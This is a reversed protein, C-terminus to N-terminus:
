LCKPSKPNVKAIIRVSLFHNQNNDLNCVLVVNTAMQNATISWVRFGQLEIVLLQCLM